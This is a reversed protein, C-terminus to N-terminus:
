EVVMEEGHPCLPLGGDEIWKETMRIKYEPDCEICDPSPIVKVMYTKQTKPQSRETLAAHPYDGLAEAAETFIKLLDEDANIEDDTAVATLKGTFGLGRAVRAFYGKHGSEGDDSAHILEHALTAVVKVPDVVVPSVFIQNVKDEATVTHWCQGIVGGKKGRGGPWGVSVRVRPLEIDHQAFIPRLEEVAAELWAERTSYLPEGTKPQGTIEWGKPGQAVPESILVWRKVFRDMLLDAVKESALDQVHVYLDPAKDSLIELVKVSRDRRKDKDHWIQGVKVADM